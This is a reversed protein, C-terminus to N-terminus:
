WESALLGYANVDYARGKAVWRQRLRGELTFGLSLLLANSALNDPDVEAEVRRIAMPGFAAGLVAALAERALGQRWHSRGVAYGLELRSAAEEYRFLLVSGIVRNDQRRLMVLQRGTGAAALADMRGLWAEADALGNWAAYPLFRTVEADGNVDLLAPLDDARVPRIELRETRIPDLEPIPM